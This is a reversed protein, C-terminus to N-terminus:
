GGIKKLLGSEDVVEQLDCEIKLVAEGDLNTDVLILLKGSEIKLTVKKGDTSM